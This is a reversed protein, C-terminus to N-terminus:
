EKEGRRIIVIKEAEALICNSALTWFLALSSLYGLCRHHHHHHPPPKDTHQVTDSKNLTVEYLQLFSNLVSSFISSDVCNAANIKCLIFLVLGGGPEALFFFLYIILQRWYICRSLICNHLYANCSGKISFMIGSVIAKNGCFAIATPSAKCM